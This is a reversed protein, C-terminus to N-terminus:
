RAWAENTRLRRQQQLQVALKWGSPERPESAWLGIGMTSHALGLELHPLCLERVYGESLEHWFRRVGTTFRTAGTIDHLALVGHPHARNLEFDRKVAQYAHNADIFVLDVHGLGRRWRAFADSASDGRFLMARPPLHLVLGKQEAWGDDCVAITDFHFLGDLCRTLAGTWAGIELYSRVGLGEIIECLAILEERNQLVCDELAEGHAEFLAQTQLDWCKVHRLEARFDRNGSDGSSM